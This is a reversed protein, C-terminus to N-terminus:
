GIRGKDRVSVREIDSGMEDAVFCVGRWILMMCNEDPLLYLTDLHMGVAESDLVHRRNVTVQLPVSPVKSVLRGDPTLNILEIAEGGRLYGEVQQDRPATNYFEFSCDEPMKPARETKWKEGFTGLHKVRPQWGKGVAGFGVPMPRDEIDAILRDPDEINPLSRGQATKKKAKEAICGKGIPNEVCAGGNVADVGGYARAYCLEMQAFPQATTPTAGGLLGGTDWGRDGFIRLTKSIRGVRLTVDVCRAPTSHPAYAKGLLLVDARPKYPALDMEFRTEGQESMEDAFAIPIQKEALVASGDVTFDFTGKVVITLIHRDGPGIGPFATACFGTRNELKM